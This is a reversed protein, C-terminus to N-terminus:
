RLKAFTYRYTSGNCTWALPKCIWVQTSSFQWRPLETRRLCQASKAFGYDQDFNDWREMQAKEEPRTGGIAVIDALVDDSVTADRSVRWHEFRDELVVAFPGEEAKQAHLFRARDEERKEVEQCMTVAKRLNPISDWGVVRQLDVIDGEAIDTHCAPHEAHDEM